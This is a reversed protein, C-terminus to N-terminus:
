GFNSFLVVPLPRVVFSNFLSVKLVVLLALPWSSSESRVVLYLELLSM